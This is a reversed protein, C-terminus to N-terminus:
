NVDSTELIIKSHHVIRSPFKFVIYDLNSKCLQKLTQPKVGVTAIYSDICKTKSYM